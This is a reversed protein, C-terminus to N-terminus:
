YGYNPFPHEHVPLRAGPPFTAVAVVVDPHDPVVIPQGTLTKNIRAVPTVVIKPADAASVANAALLLIAIPVFRTMAMGKRHKRGLRAFATAARYGRRVGDPSPWSLRPRNRSRGAM